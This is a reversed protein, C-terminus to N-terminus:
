RAKGALVRAVRTSRSSHSARRSRTLPYVLRTANVTLTGADWALSRIPSAGGATNLFQAPPNVQFPRAALALTLSLPQDTLNRPRLACRAAHRGANRYRVDHHAAVLPITTWQVGADASRRRRPVAAISTRGPLPRAATSSSRSSRSAARASKWRAM